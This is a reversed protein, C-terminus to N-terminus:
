DCYVSVPGVLGLASVFVGPLTPLPLALKSAVPIVRGQSVDVARAPISGRIQREPLLRKVM